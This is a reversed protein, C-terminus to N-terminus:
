GGTDPSQTASNPRSETGPSLMRILDHGHVEGSTLSGAVRLMDGWHARIRDLRVTHKSVPHLPGHDAAANTRWLRVDSIDAIRPSLTWSESATQVQLM